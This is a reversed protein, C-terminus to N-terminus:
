DLKTQVIVTLQDGNRNLTVTSNELITRDSLNLLNKAGSETSGFFAVQADRCINETVPFCYPDIYNTIQAISDGDVADGHDRIVINVEADPNTFTEGLGLPDIISGSGLDLLNASTDGRYISGVVNIKGQHDTVSGTAYIVAIKAATNSSILSPDPMGAAVSDLFVAGFVDLGGCRIPGDPNTICNEPSNFIAWWVTVAHPKDAIAANSLFILTTVVVMKSILKLM